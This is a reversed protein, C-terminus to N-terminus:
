GRAQRARSRHLEPVHFADDRELLQDQGYAFSISLTLKNHDTARNNFMSRELTPFATSQPISQDM